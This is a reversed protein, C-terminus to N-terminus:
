VWQNLSDCHSVSLVQPLGSTRLGVIHFLQLPSCASHASCAHALAPTHLWHLCWGSLIPCDIPLVYRAVFDLRDLCKIIRFTSGVEFDEFSECLVGRSTSSWSNQESTWVSTPYIYSSGRRDNSVNWCFTLLSVNLTWSLSDWPMQSLHSEM